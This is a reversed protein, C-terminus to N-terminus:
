RTKKYLLKAERIVERLVIDEVSDIEFYRLSKITNRNEGILIDQHLILEYGKAFGIDVFGKSKNPAIYVFPKKEYYFYPIGWKFLLETVEIEQEIVSIVYHIIEQFQPSQKLIYVEAPKM